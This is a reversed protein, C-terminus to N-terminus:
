DQKRPHSLRALAWRLALNIDKIDIRPVRMRKKSVSAIFDSYRHADDKVLRLALDRTDRSALNETPILDLTSKLEDGSFVEPINFIGHFGFSNINRQHREVAFRKAIDITAFRIGHSKELLERNNRCICVDEPHSLIVDPDSLCEMLRKSRLSFGGNGVTHHQFQPWPAGIYDFELFENSWASTNTVFGDWQIILAHSTTIQDKIEKLVFASYEETNSLPRIPIYRWKAPQHDQRGDIDSFVVCDGPTIASLTKTLARYSLAHARTAVMCVTVEPIQLNTRTM